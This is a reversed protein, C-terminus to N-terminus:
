CRLQIAFLFRLSSGNEDYFQAGFSVMLQDGIAVVVVNVACVIRASTLTRGFHM